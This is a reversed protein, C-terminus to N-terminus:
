VTCLPCAGREYTWGMLSQVVEFGVSGLTASSVTGAVSAARTLTPGTGTLGPGPVVGVAAGPFAAGQATFALDFTISSPGLYAGDFDFRHSGITGTASATELRVITTVNDICVLDRIGEDEETIAVCAGHWEKGACDEPLLASPDYPDVRGCFLTDMGSSLEAEVTLSGDFGELVAWDYEHESTLYADSSAPSLAMVTAIAILVGRM